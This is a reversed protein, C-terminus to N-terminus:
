LVSLHTAHLPDKTHNEQKPGVSLLNRQSKDVFSGFEMALAIIMSHSYYPYEHAMQKSKNLDLIHCLAYNMFIFFAWGM